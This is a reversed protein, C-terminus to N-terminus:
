IKFFPCNVKRSVIINLPKAEVSVRIDLPETVDIPNLDVTASVMQESENLLMSSSIMKM